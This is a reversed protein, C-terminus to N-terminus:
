GPSLRDRRGRPGAVLRPPPPVPVGRRWEALVGHDAGASLLSLAIAADAPLSLRAFFYSFVAERVGFGNVSVPAMQM